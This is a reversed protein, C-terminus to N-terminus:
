WIQSLMMLGFLAVAVGQLIVRAAMLRTSYKADAKTNFGFSIIGAFLVLVTALMVGGLLFPLIDTLTSMSEIYPGASRLDHFFEPGGDYRYGWALFRV